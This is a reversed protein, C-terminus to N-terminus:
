QNIKIIGRKADGIFKVDSQFRDFRAVHVPIKLEIPESLASVRFIYTSAVVAFHFASSFLTRM